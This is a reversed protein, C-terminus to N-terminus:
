PTNKTEGPPIKKSHLHGAYDNGNTISFPQGM